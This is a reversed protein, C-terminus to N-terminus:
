GLGLLSVKIEYPKSKKDLKEKILNHAEKDMLVKM